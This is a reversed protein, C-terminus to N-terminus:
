TILVVGVGICVDGEDGDKANPAHELGRRAAPAEAIVSVLVTM